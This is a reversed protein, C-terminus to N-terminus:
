GNLKSFRHILLHANKKRKEGAPVINVIILYIWNNM